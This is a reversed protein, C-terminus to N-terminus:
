VAHNAGCQKTLRWLQGAPPPLIEALQMMPGASGRENKPNAAAPEAPAAVALRSVAGAALGAALASSSELFDRRTTSSRMTPEKLRSRVQDRFERGVRPAM